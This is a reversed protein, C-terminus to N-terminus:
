KSGTVQTSMKKMWEAWSLPKGQNNNKQKKNSSVVNKHNKAPPNTTSNEKKTQAVANHAFVFLVLTCVGLLKSAKM